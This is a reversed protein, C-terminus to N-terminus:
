IVLRATGDELRIRVDEGNKLCARMYRLMDYDRTGKYQPPYDHFEEIYNVIREDDTYIDSAVVDGIVKFDDPYKSMLCIGTSVSYEGNAFTIHVSSYARLTDKAQERVRLPLTYFDHMKM